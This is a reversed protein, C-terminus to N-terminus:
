KLADARFLSDFDVREFLELKGGATANYVTRGDRDFAERACSFARNVVKWDPYYWDTGASYRPHFHNSDEGETRVRSGVKEGTPPVVKSHDMGVLYVPNFGMYFAIQLGAFTVSQGIGVFRTVDTSFSAERYRLSTPRYPHWDFRLFYTNEGPNPVLDMHREPFFRIAYDIQNIKEAHQEMYLRDEVIYYTPEFGMEDHKLYIGNFGFTREQKFRRLDVANLSPGNGIIFCREGRHVGRFRRARARQRFGFHYRALRRARRSLDALPM